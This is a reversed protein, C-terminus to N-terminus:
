CSNEGNFLLLILRGLDNTVIWRPINPNIFIYKDGRHIEKVYPSLQPNSEMM